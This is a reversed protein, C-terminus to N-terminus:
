ELHPPLLLPCLHPCPCLLASTPSLPPVQSPGDWGPPGEEKSEALMQVAEELDGRAKALVWQAQEVSCTPFVELLVDVGPLLEEESGAAQPCLHYSYAVSRGKRGGRDKMPVGEEVLVEHQTDGTAAPSRTEERLKEPQRLTEPFIPVQGQVCSSQPHLNEELPLSPIPNALAQSPPPIRWISSGWM